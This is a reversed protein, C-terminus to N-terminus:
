RPSGGRQRGRWGPIQACSALLPRSCLGLLVISAAATRLARTVEIWSYVDLVIDGASLFPDNADAPVPIPTEVLSGAPHDMRLPGALLVEM